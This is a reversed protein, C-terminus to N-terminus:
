VIINVHILEISINQHGVEREIKARQQGGEKGAKRGRKKKGVTRHKFYVM